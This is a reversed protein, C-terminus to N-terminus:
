SLKLEFISLIKLERALGIFRILVRDRGRSLEWSHCLGGLCDGLRSGHRDELYDKSYNLFVNIEFKLNAFTFCLHDANMIHLKTPL